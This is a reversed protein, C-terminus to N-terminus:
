KAEMKVCDESIFDSKNEVCKPLGPGEVEEGKEDGELSNTYKLFTEIREKM